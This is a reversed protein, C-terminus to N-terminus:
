VQKAFSRTVKFKMKRANEKTKEWKDRRVLFYIVLGGVAIGVVLLIFFTVAIGAILGVNVSSKAVFAGGQRTDAYAMDDEVRTELEIFEWNSADNARMIKIDDSSVSTDIPIAIVAPEGDELNSNPFLTTPTILIVDSVSEGRPDEIGLMDEALSVNAFQDMRFESPGTLAAQQFELSNSYSLTCISPPVPIFIFYTFSAMVPM